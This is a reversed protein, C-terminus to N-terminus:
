INKKKREEKTVKDASGKNAGQYAHQTNTLTTM